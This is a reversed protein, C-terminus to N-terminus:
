ATWYRVGPVPEFRPEMQRAALIGDAMLVGLVIVAACVAVLRDRRKM